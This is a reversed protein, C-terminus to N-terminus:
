PSPVKQLAIDPRYRAPSFGSEPGPAILVAQSGTQSRVVPWESPELAWFQKACPRELQVRLSTLSPMGSHDRSRGQGSRRGPRPWKKRPGARRRRAVKPRPWRAGAGDAKSPDPASSTPVAAEGRAGTGLVRGVREKLWLHRRSAHIRRAPKKRNFDRDGPM